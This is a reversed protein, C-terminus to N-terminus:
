RKITCELLTGAGKGEVKPKWVAALDFDASDLLNKFQSLTRDMSSFMAMMYLDLKAAYLSVDSSPM